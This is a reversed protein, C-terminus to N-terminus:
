RDLLSHAEPLTSRDFSAVDTLGVQELLSARREHWIKNERDGDIEHSVIMIADYFMGNKALLRAKELPDSTALLQAVLLHPPAIRMIEASCFVDNAGQNKVPKLALSMQYGVGPELKVHYKALDFSRIGSEHPDLNIELIPDKANPDDLMLTLALPTDTPKSLYWFVVPQEQITLGVHDPALIYLSPLGSGHDRTPSSGDVRMNGPSNPPPQYVIEDVPLDAPKTTQAASYLSAIALVVAM